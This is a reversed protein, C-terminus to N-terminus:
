KLPYTPIPGNNSNVNHNSKGTGLEVIVIVMVRRVHHIPWLILAINIVEQRTKAKWATSAM